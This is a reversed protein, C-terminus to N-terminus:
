VRAPRLSRPYPSWHSRYLKKGARSSHKPCPRRQSGTIVCSRGYGSSNGPGRWTGRVSLELGIHWRMRELRKSTMFPLLGVLGSDLGPAESHPSNHNIYLLPFHYDTDTFL